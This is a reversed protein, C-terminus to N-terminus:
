QLYYVYDIINYYILELIEYLKSSFSFLICNYVKSQFFNGNEHLELIKSGMLYFITDVNINEKSSAEFFLLGFHDAVQM